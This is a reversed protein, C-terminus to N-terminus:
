YGHSCCQDRASSGADPVRECAFEGPSPGVQDEDGTVRLFIHREGGFLSTSRAEDGLLAPDGRVDAASLEVREGAAPLAAVLAAAAASAGAEDQGCFFFIRCSAAAERMRGAFDRNTLKM